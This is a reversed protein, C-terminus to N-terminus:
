ACWFIQKVLLAKWVDTKSQVVWLAVTNTSKPSKTLVKMAKLLELAKLVELAQLLNLTKLTNLLELAKKLKKASKLM